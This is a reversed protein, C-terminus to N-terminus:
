ALFAAASQTGTLINGTAAALVEGEEGAPDPDPTEGDLVLLALPVVGLEAELVFEPLM